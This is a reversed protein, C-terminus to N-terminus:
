DRDKCMPGLETLLRVRAINWHFKFTAYQILFSLSQTNTSGVFLVLVCLLVNINKWLFEASRLFERARNAIKGVLTSKAPIPETTNSRDDEDDTAECAARKAKAEWLTEPIFFTFPMSIIMIGLSVIFPLWAGAGMM